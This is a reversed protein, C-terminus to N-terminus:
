YLKPTKNIREITSKFELGVIDLYWKITEYRPINESEIFKLGEERTIMGERIQNSRFTDFESFGAVTNYIYNYFGATGDGIRWTSKTDIATEWDYENKLLHNIETEDWRYYDFMHYYDKRPFVHRVAFSGLTDWISNNFYSPNTILNRGTYSFLNIQEFMSLSYIRKKNFKLKLGAFGVKFDTNELPNIGWINLKIGTHKKLQNTYYFFYKDGAMFLPIMGLEPKKLWASINKRINDRKWHIDASVIINEVGLKGCVRAINRRALDTVMGWDYTFAIPNLKLITKAIHLTLTSDRGGSFPIICDPTGDKSRYPEVMKFLDEIPKIQNKPKYNNCINCVGHEDFEIYPFTEPLLCKTCRKLNRIKDWNNELLKVEENLGKAQQFKSIDIVVERRNKINEISHIETSYDDPQSTNDPIKNSSKLDFDIISFKEIDLYLGTNSKIQRISFNNINRELNTKSALRKLFSYESAFILIDKSNTLVYLSGNNTALVVEKRDNFFLSAAVTGIVENISESVSKLINLKNNLNKRISALMVETDIEYERKLDPHKQWLDDVNVIIGNHIAAIGDKIVPQNNETKLQSGNTVLRAHGMIAFNNKLTKKDPSYTSNLSDNLKQTFTKHKLLFSVPVDGKCVIMKQKAEDRIIIGSSDKGRSQSFLAIENIIKKTSKIDLTSGSKIVLGFIGCM